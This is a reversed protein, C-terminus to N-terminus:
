SGGRHGQRRDVKRRGGPRRHRREAAGKEGAGRAPDQGGAGRFSEVEAKSLDRFRGPPLHGLCVDGIRVRELYLVPHGAGAALLRIERKRGEVLVVQMWTNSGDTSLPAVGKPVSRKGDIVVGNRFRELSDGNVRGQVLVKYEKDIGYSPHTVRNAWDGDNTLFLLGTTDKDLRGVPYMRESTKVVELVTTEGHTAATTTVVGAPKNFALYRPTELRIPKNDVTITASRPDVTQGIVAPKGDVTVRGERILDEAKRRSAIGARALLKQVRETM